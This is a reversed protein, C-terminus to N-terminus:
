ILRLNQFECSCLKCEGGFLWFNGRTDTWSAAGRRSGPVQIGTYVGNQNSSSSGNVWTWFGEEVNWNWLDCYADSGASLSTLLNLEFCNM